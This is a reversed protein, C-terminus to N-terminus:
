LDYEALLAWRLKAYHIMGTLYHLRQGSPIGATFDLGYRSGVHQRVQSFTTDTLRGTRAVLGWNWPQEFIRRAVPAPYGAISVLVDAGLEAPDSLHGAYDSDFFFHVPQDRRGLVAVTLHHGVEHLFAASVAAPHHATNVYILPRKLITKANKVYFGFLALGDRGHYPTAQLHCGLAAAMSAALEPFQRRSAATLHERNLTPWIRGGAKLIEKVERYGLNRRLYRVYDRRVVRDLDQRPKRWAALKSRGATQASKLMRQILADVAQNQYSRDTM